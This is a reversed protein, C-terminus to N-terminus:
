SIRPGAQFHLKDANISLQFTAIFKRHDPYIVTTTWRSYNYHVKKVPPPPITESTVQDMWFQTAVSRFYKRLTHNYSFLIYIVWTGKWLTFAGIAGTLFSIIDNTNHVSENSYSLTVALRSLFYAWGLLCLWGALTPRIRGQNTVKYWTKSYITKM